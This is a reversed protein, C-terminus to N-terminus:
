VRDEGGCDGRRKFRTKYSILGLRKAVEMILDSNESCTKCTSCSCVGIKKEVTDLLQSKTFESFM